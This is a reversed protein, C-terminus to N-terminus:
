LPDPIVPAACQPCFKQGKEVKEGCSRCRLVRMRGSVKLFVTGLIAFLLGMCGFILPGFFFGWTYGATHRVDNPNEPNYRIQRLSGPPFADARRKMEVYSSSAYDSQSPTRYERGEVRYRFEVETKYMTTDVNRDMDRKTYHTVNSKTVTADIVPWTKIIKVQENALWIGAALMAVGVSAFIGGVLRFAAQDTM